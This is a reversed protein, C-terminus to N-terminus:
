SLTKAIEVSFLQRSNRSVLNIHAIISFLGYFRFFPSFSALISQPDFLIQVMTFIFIYILAAKVFVLMGTTLLILLM